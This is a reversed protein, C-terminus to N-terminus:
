AFFEGGSINFTEGTIAAAAPSVLFMTLAAVERSEVFRGIAIGECALRYEEEPTSHAIRARKDLDARAMPTDVWGPCVANVTIGRPALERSFCKTLGLVAHKSACYAGYGARGLKGLGSSIIVVRGGNRIRGHLTRMLKWVADTNTRMVTEWIGDADEDELTAQLCVGASAVVAHLPPVEALAQGYATLDSVDLVLPIVKGALGMTATDELKELTRGVAYVTFGAEALQLTVARGIGSGAGTVLAFDTM